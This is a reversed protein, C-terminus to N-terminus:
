APDTKLFAFAVQFRFLVRRGLCGICQQRKSSHHIPQRKIKQIPPSAPLLLSDKNCKWPCNALINFEILKPKTNALFIATQMITQTGFPM